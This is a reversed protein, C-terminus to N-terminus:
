AAARMRLLSQGVQVIGVVIPGLVLWGVLAIRAILLMPSPIRNNYVDNAFASVAGGLGGVLMGGIGILLASLVLLSARRPYNTLSWILGATGVLGASLLFWHYPTAAIGIFGLGSFTIICAPVAGLLVKTITRMPKM